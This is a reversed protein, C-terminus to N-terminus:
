EFGQLLHQARLLGHSMRGMVVVSCLVFCTGTSQLLLAFAVVVVDHPSPLPLPQPYQLVQCDQFLLPDLHGLLGVFGVMGMSLRELIMDSIDRLQWSKRIM